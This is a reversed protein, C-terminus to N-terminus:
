TTGPICGSRGVAGVGDVLDAPPELLIIATTNHKLAIPTTAKETNLLLLFTLGLKDTEELGLGDRDLGDSGGVEVGDVGEFGLGDGESVGLGDKGTGVGDAEEM